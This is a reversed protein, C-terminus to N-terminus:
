VVGASVVTRWGFRSIAVRATSVARPRTVAGDGRVMRWTSGDDRTTRRDVVGPHGRVAAPLGPHTRFPTSRFNLLRHTARRTGGQVASRVAQPPNALLGAAMRRMWLKQLAKRKMTLSWGTGM